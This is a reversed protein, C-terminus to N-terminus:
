CPAPHPPDAHCRTVFQYSRCGGPVRRRTFHLSAQNQILEGRYSPKMAFVRRPKQTPVVLRRFCGGNRRRMM